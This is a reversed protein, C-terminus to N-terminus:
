ANPAPNASLVALDIERVLVSEVNLMAEGLNGMSGFAPEAPAYIGSQAVYLDWDRAGSLHGVCGATVVICNNEIARARACIRIQELGCDDEAAFPVLLIQAGQEVLKFALTSQVVDRGVLVGIRGVDSDFAVVQTGHSLGWWRKESNTPHLKRQSSIKGNRHFLYAASFLSQDDLVEMFTGGLINVNFKMALVSLAKQAELTYQAVDRLQLGPRDQPVLDLLQNGLYEPFVVLDLKYDSLSDIWRECRNVFEAVSTVPKFKYQIVGIRVRKFRLRINQEPIYDLNAWELFTAYGRSDKDSELYHPILRKLVFGNALQSTLVPDYLVKQMTKDIYERVSLSDAHEGYGPIRGGIVIRKLNLARALDKRADYLRRSLKMNRYAPDVMIEIGYLTDGDKRHNRIYGSDALDQWNTQPSYLDFDVILSSSSAVVQGDFEVVLQGQPFIRLQSEIQERKWPKMGPFCQQQLRVIADYDSLRMQRVHVRHQGGNNSNSM